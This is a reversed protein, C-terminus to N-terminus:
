KALVSFRDFSCPVNFQKRYEIGEYRARTSMSLVSYVCSWNSLLQIRVSNALTCADVSTQQQRDVKLTVVRFPESDSLDDDKQVHRCPSEERM